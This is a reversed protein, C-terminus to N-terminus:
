VPQRRCRLVNQQPAGVEVQDAQRGSRLVHSGKHGSSEGPLTRWLRRCTQQGRRLVAFAPAPIPHVDGAIGVRGAVVGVIGDRFGPQIAIVDDVREVGVLGVVLKEALLNGAVQQRLPALGFAVGLLHSRGPKERQRATVGRRRVLQPVQRQFVGISM